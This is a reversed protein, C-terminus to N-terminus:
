RLIARLLILFGSKNHKLLDFNKLAGDFKPNINLSKEFENIAKLFFDRCQILHIVGLENWFDAYIDHSEVEEKIVHEYFELDNKTLETGGYMFKLFFYDMMMSDDKTTVILIQIRRLEKLIKNRNGSEITSFFSSFLTQWYEDQYRDHSKITDFTRMVRAPVIVNEEETGDAITSMFLIIGLNFNAELYDPSLDIAKQVYKAAEDFNKQQAYTVGLCNLLDPYKPQMKHAALFTESANEFDNLMLYSLGLYKYGAVFDKNLNVARKLNEVAELYFKKSYFVRGLRYHPQHKRLLKIKEHVYFLVQIEDITENHLRRTSKKVYDEEMGSSEEDRYTYSNQNVFLFQGKEFVESKVQNKNSDNGTHIQIERGAIKVLDKFGIGKKL